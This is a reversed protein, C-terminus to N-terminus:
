RELHGEGVRVPKTLSEVWDPIDIKKSLDIKTM